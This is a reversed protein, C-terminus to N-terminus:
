RLVTNAAGCSYQHTTNENQNSELFKKSYKRRIEKM